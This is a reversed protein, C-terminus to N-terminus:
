VTRVWEVSTTVPGAIRSATRYHFSAAEVGIVRRVGSCISRKKSPSSGTSGPRTGRGRHRGSAECTPAGSAMSSNPTTAYLGQRAGRDADERYVSCGPPPM